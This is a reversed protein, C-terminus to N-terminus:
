RPVRVSIVIGHRSERWVYFEAYVAIKVTSNISHRRASQESDVACREHTQEQISLETSEGGVGNREGTPMLSHFLPCSFSFSGM